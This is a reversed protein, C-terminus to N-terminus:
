RSAAEQESANRVATQGMTRVSDTAKRLAPSHQSRWEDIFRTADPGRWINTAQAILGDITKLTQELTMAQQDLRKGLDRVANIDMGTMAGAGTKIIPTTM